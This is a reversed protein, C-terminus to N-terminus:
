LTLSPHYSLLKKSVRALRGATQIMKPYDRIKSFTKNEDRSGLNDSQQIENIFRETLWNEWNNSGHSAASNLTTNSRSVFTNFIQESSVQTRPAQRTPNASNMESVWLFNNGNASSHERLLEFIKEPKYFDLKRQFAIIYPIMVALEIKIQSDWVTAINSLIEFFQQIDRLEFGFYDFANELYIPLDDNPPISLITQDIQHTVLLDEVFEEVSPAMLEYSRDFFRNLYGASDFDQGYVAKISHRLQETDTAIVFILNNISFLHKIRELMAIAYPPRCRDLEDILVFMPTHLNGIKTESLLNKLNFQFEEASQKEKNFSELLKNGIQDFYKNSQAEIGSGIGKTTEQKLNPSTNGTLQENDSNGDFIDAIKDTADGILKKGVQKVLGKTAAIAIEGAYKKVAELIKKNKKNRAILPKVANDIAAMVSLFPNDTYDDKWANVEAVIYGQARLQEAFNTLFFTKGRGWSADINLVYSADLERKRRDKIRALLFEALFEADERRNLRDNKWIRSLQEETLEIPDTAM